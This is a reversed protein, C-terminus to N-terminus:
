VVFLVFRSRMKRRMICQIMIDVLYKTLPTILDTHLYKEIGRSEYNIGDNITRLSIQRILGFLVAESIM